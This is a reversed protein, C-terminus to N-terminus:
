KTGYHIVKKKYNPCDDYEWTFGFTQKYTGNLCKKIGSYDFGTKASADKISGYTAIVVGDKLQKIPRSCCLSQNVNITIWDGVKFKPEVKYTPKQEGQKELWSIVVNNDSIEEYVSDMHNKFFHILEKRIREDEDDKLKPFIYECTGKATPTPVITENYIGKAREFAQEYEKKYDM